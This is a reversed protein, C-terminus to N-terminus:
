APLENAREPMSDVALSFVLPFINAFGLGAVFFSAAAVTREPVFLGLLGLISAACTVLLFKRPAMWNLIVGGSLRGITLATFFLGTGLLGVRNIDIGFARQPVAPHRLERM